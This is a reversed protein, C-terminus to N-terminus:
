KVLIRAYSINQNVLKLSVTQTVGPEVIGRKPNFDLLKPESRRIKYLLVRDDISSNKIKFSCVENGQSLELTRPFIKM